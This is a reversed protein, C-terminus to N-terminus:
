SLRREGVKLTLQVKTGAGPATTIRCEGGLKEMRKVMNELGSGKRDSHGNRIGCGNDEVVITVTSDFIRLAVHVESAQAHKAANNLAEKLALFLEHRAEAPIVVSPVQVPMELRCRIHTGELFENAYQGIYGVLGNLTDKQPDVAWVIEDMIQMTNVASDVMKRAHVILKDPSAADEQVRQGLLMMRTLRSGLDDHIDKAIRAREKEVANQRELQELERQMKKGTIYRAMGSVGMVAVLAALAKFWLTQWYHPELILAVSAGTENWVGNANCGKVQFVYHGPRVDNYYASRRSGVDVWDSDVGKLQCFFRDGSPKKFDLMSFQFEFTGNGPPIILRQTSNTGTSSSLVITEKGNVLVQQIFVPSPVEDMKIDPNVVVLGKTTAFWLRGDQGKWGSPKGIGSCITTEMGDSKGYSLSTIFSNSGHDLADLNQKRVRFIGKPCSMWLWGYDDQVIQYIDDSFLGQQTTYAKFQGKYYRNLGGSETGIWLNGRHDEYLATISDDSLGQARGFHMFGDNNLRCLGQDTGFWVNGSQDQCIARVDAGGHYQNTQYNTFHRNRFCSLGQSAGIWLNSSDDEFLTRIGSKILGNKWTYHSVNGNEFRYLGGDNDEGVWISGDRSQCLSLVEDNALGNTRCYVVVSEDRIENLGGGFTGVWINGEHDQLVSVTDNHSLGQRMDYAFFRRQALRTLGENSGVWLDGDRDQFIANVEDYPDGESDLENFFRGDRFRNLGSHTGVWLNGQSDECVVNVFPDSLGYQRGYAYFEPGFHHWIMGNDSGIWLRGEKDQTIGRISVNQLEDIKGFLGAQDNSLYNLGAVTGVWLTGSQDEYIARVSDSLLGNQLTYNKFVGHEYRSLGSETGIWLSGDQSQCIVNVHQGALGTSSDYRTFHGNKLRVLGNLTGIWLAGDRGVCLATIHSDAIKPTNKSDFVKFNEGDFRALGALTGVWLYGDPTQAIARVVNHPLGQDTQFTFTSYPSALHEINYWDLWDSNAKIQRIHNLTVGDQADIAFVELSGDQNMGVAVYPKAKGGLSDWRAFWGKVPRNVQWRHLVQQTDRGVAFLELRGDENPRLTLGDLVPPSAFNTWSSWQIHGGKLNGSLYDVTYNTLNVGFVNLTGNTDQGAAIGPLLAGGLNQWGTWPSGDGPTTQRCHMLRQTQRNVGFLELCDDHDKIVVIAPQFTGGLNQWTSWGGSANSQWLRMANGAPNLALIETGGAENHCISVPAQIHGGLDTWKSWAGYTSTQHIWQLHRDSQDVAFASLRGNVNTTVAIGPLFSGGLDSWPTWDGGARRQWRQRLHGIKDVKFLHLHGDMDRAVALQGPVTPSEAHLALSGSLFITFFLWRGSAAIWHSFHSSRSNM